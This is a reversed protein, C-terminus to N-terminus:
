RGSRSTRVLTGLYLVGASAVLGVITLMLPLSAAVLSGFALLWSRSRSRGPSCSADEDDGLPQRRQLGVVHRVRRDPQGHRRATGLARLPGKLRDAALVMQKPSARLAPPSSRRTGTGASRCAPSGARRRERSGSRGQRASRRQPRSLAFAPDGAHLSPSLLVIMLGTSANGAFHQQILSRAAVSAVRRRGAPARSRPEVRPALFGLASPSRRGLRDGRARTHTAAYRGLRGVPGLQLTSASMACRRARAGFLRRLVVSAVCDGVVVFALQNLGRLGRAAAVVPRDTAALVASVLTVTGAMAFLVRELPWGSWHGLVAPRRTRTSM